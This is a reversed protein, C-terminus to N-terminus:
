PQMAKQIAQVVEPNQLVRLAAQLDPQPSVPHIAPHGQAKSKEELSESIYEMVDVADELSPARGTFIMETAGDGLIDDLADNMLEWAAEIGEATEPLEKGAQLMKEGWTKLKRSLEPTVPVSFLHGAIDLELAQVPQVKTKFEFKKM